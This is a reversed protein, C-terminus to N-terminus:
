HPQAATFDVLCPHQGEMAKIIKEAHEAQAPSRIVVLLQCQGPDASVSNRSWWGFYPGDDWGMGLSRVDVASVNGRTAPLIVRVVGVYTASRGGEGARITACGGLLFCLIGM